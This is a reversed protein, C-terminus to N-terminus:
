REELALADSPTITAEGLDILGSLELGGTLGQGLNAFLEPAM